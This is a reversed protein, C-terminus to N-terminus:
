VQRGTSTSTYGLDPSFVCIFIAYSFYTAGEHISSPSFGVSAEEERAHSRASMAACRGSAYESAVAVEKLAERRPMGRYLLFRHPHLLRTRRRRPRFGGWMSGQTGGESIEGAGQQELWAGGGLNEDPRSGSAQRSM